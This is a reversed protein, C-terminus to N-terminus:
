KRKSLKVGDECGNVKTMVAPKQQSISKWIVLNPEPILDKPSRLTQCHHTFNGANRQNTATQLLERTRRLFPLKEDFLWKPFLKTERQFNIAVMPHCAM